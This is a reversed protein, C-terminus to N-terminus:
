TQIKGGREGSSPKQVAEIYETSQCFYPGHCSFVPRNSSNEAAKSRRVILATETIRQKTFMNGGAKPGEAINAGLAGVKQCV